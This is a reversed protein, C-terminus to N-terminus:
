SNGQGGALGFNMVGWFEPKLFFYNYHPDSEELLLICLRPRCTRQRPWVAGQQPLPRLPEPRGLGAMGMSVRLWAKRVSLWAQRSSWHCLSESLSWRSRHASSHFKFNWSRLFDFFTPFSFPGMLFPPTTCTSALGFARRLFVSM